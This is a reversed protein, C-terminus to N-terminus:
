PQPQTIHIEGVTEERDPVRLEKLCPDDGNAQIQTRHQRGIALSPLGQGLGRASARRKKRRAAAAGDGALLKFFDKLTEAVMGGNTPGRCIPPLGAEMVEPVGHRHM